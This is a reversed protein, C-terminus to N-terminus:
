GGQREEAGPIRGGPDMLLMMEPVIMRVPMMLVAVHSEPATSSGTLARSRTIASPLHAAGPM